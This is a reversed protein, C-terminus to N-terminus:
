QSRGTWFKWLVVVAAVVAALWRVFTGIGGLVKFFGRATGVWEHIDATLNTNAKLQREIQDIRDEIAAIHDPTVRREDGDWPTLTHQSDSPVADGYLPCDTARHVADPDRIPGSM